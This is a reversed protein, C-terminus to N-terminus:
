LFPFYMIYCYFVVSLMVFFPHFLSCLQLPLFVSVFNERSFHFNFFLFTVFFFYSFVRPPPSFSVGIIVWGTLSISVFCSTDVSHISALTIRIKLFPSFAFYFSVFWALYDLESLKLFKKLFLLASSKGKYLVFAVSDSFSLPICSASVFLSFGFM